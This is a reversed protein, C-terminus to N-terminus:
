LCKVWTCNHRLKGHFEQWSNRAHNSWYEKCLYDCSTDVHFGRMTTLCGAQSMELMMGRNTWAVLGSRAFTLIGILFAFIGTIDWLLLIVKRLTLSCISLSVRLGIFLCQGAENRQNTFLGLSQMRKMFQWGNVLNNVLRQQFKEKYEIKYLVAFSVSSSLYQAFLPLQAM